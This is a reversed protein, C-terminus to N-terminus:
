ETGDDGSGIGGFESPAGVAVKGWDEDCYVDGCSVIVREVLM